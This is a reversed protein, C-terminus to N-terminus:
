GDQGRGRRAGGDGQGLGGGRQAGVFGPREFVRGGAAPELEPLRRGGVEGPRRELHAPEAGGDVELGGGRADLDGADLDHLGAAEPGRGHFLLDILVDGAPGGPVDGDGVVRRGTRRGGGGRLRGGDGLARGLDPGGRLAEQLGRQGVLRRYLATGSARRLDREG